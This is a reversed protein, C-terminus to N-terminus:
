MRGTKDYGAPQVSREINRIKLILKQKATTLNIKKVLQYINSRHPNVEDVKSKLLNGKCSGVKRVDRFKRGKHYDYM